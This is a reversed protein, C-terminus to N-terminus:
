GKKSLFKEVILDAVLKEIPTTKGSNSKGVISVIPILTVIM